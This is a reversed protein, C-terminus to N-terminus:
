YIRGKLEESINLKKFEKANETHIPWIRQTPNVETIVKELLEPYAHGSTHKKIADYKECFAALEPNYAKKKPDIYGEWMSYILEPKVDALEDMIREYHDYESVIAIFGKERMEDLTKYAETNDGGNEEFIFPMKKVDIFNYLNTYKRGATRYLNLQKLVYSNAYMTMDHAHAAQYFSALSDVNTSSIKLFIYRHDKFHEWAWRELDKESFREEKFREGMMTGEIILVDVNRKGKKKVYYKIVDIIVNQDKGHKIIHGRHGHDRFDGTHLINTGDAEVLYMYADFASHDVSYGTVIIDDNISIPVAREVFSISGNERREQLKDVADQDKLAMRINLMVYYTVEGMYLDVDDPIEMFRGIHDGHYHTFFVADVKEKDWDFEIKSENKAGPLNEGYDIVIKAKKTSIVTICGGIQNGQYVNINAAM